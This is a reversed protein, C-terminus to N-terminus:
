VNFGFGLLLLWVLVVFLVFGVFLGAAFWAWRGRRISVVLLREHTACWCDQSPRAQACRVPPTSCGYSHGLPYPAPSVRWSPCFPSVSGTHDDGVGSLWPICPNLWETHGVDAM